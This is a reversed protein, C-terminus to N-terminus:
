MINIIQILRVVRGSACTGLNLMDSMQELLLAYVDIIKDNEKINNIKICIESLIDDAYLKDFSSYNQEQQINNIILNLGNIGNNFIQENIKDQYKNINNKLEDFLYIKKNNDYITEIKYDGLQGDFEHVNKM